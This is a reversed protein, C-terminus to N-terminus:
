PLPPARVLGGKSFTLVHPVEAGFLDFGNSSLAKQESTQNSIDVDPPLQLGKEGGVTKDGQNDEEPSGSAMPHEPTGKM